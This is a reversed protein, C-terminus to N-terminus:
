VPAPSTPNQLKPTPLGRFRPSDPFLAGNVPAMIETPASPTRLFIKDVTTLWLSTCSTRQRGDLRYSLYEMIRSPPPAAPICNGTNRGESAGLGRRKKTKGPGTLQAGKQPPADRVVATNFGRLQFGSLGLTASRKVRPLPVGIWQSSARQECDSQHRRQAPSLAPQPARDRACQTAPKTFAIGRLKVSLELPHTPPATTHYSAGSGGVCFTHQQKRLARLAKHHPASAGTRLAGGRGGRTGHAWPGPGKPYPPRQAERPIRACVCM